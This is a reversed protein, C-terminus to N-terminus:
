PSELLKNAANDRPPGSTGRGADRRIRTYTGFGCNPASVFRLKGVTTFGSIGAGGVEEGGGGSGGPPGAEEAGGSLPFYVVRFRSSPERASPFSTSAAPSGYVRPARRIKRFGIFVSPLKSRSIDRGGRRKLRSARSAM